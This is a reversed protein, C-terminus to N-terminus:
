FPVEDNLETATGVAPEGDNAQRQPTAATKAKAKRAAEADIRAQEEISRFRVAFTENGTKPNDVWKGYAVAKTGILDAGQTSGAIGFLTRNNTKNGPLYQEPFEEFEWCMRTDGGDFTREEVKTVTVIRPPDVDDGKLVPTKAYKAFDTM